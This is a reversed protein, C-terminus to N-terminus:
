KSQELEVVIPAPGSGEVKRKARKVGFNHSAEHTVTHDLAASSERVFISYSKLWYKALFSERVIYSIRRKLVGFDAM